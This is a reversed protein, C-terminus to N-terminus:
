YFHHVVVAQGLHGGWQEVGAAGLGGRAFLYNNEPQYLVQADIGVGVTTKQPLLLHFPYDGPSFSHAAVAKPLSRHM